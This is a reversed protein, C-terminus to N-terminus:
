EPQLEKATAVHPHCLCDGRRYLHARHAGYEAFHRWARAAEPFTMGGCNVSVSHTRSATAHWWNTPIFLADGPGLLVQGIDAGAFAPHRARDLPRRRGRERLDPLRVAPERVDPRTAGARRAARDERRDSAGPRQRRRRPSVGLGDGRRRDVGTPVVAEQPRPDLLRRRRPPRPLAQLSRAGALYLRQETAQGGLVADIYGALTM